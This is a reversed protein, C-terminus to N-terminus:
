STGLGVFSSKMVRPQYVMRMMLEDPLSRKYEPMTLEPKSNLYDPLNAIAKKIVPWNKHRLTENYWKPKDFLNKVFTINKDHYKRM